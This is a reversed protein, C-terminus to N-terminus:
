SRAIPCPFIPLCELHDKSELEIRWLGSELIKRRAVEFQQHGADIILLGDPKILRKLEALFAGPQQIGHFVDLALIRDAIADPLGSNYGHALVPQVNTLGYRAIKSKVADIALEHIDVAFVKGAGEVIRAIRLTYRGPGCGYDVVSMGPQLGFGALRKEVFPFLFDILSFMWIMLKFSANSMREVSRQRVQEQDTM